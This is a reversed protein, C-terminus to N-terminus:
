NDNLRPYPKKPAPLYGFTDRMLWDTIKTGTRAHTKGFVTWDIYNIARSIHNRPDLAIYETIVKWKPDKDFDLGIRACLEVMSGPRKSKHGFKKAKNMARRIWRYRVPKPVDRWFGPFEKELREEMEELFQRARVREVFDRSLASMKVPQDGGKHKKWYSNYDHTQWFADYRRNYEEITEDYRKMVEPTLEFTDLGSSLNQEQWSRDRSEPLCEFRVDACPRGEKFREFDVYYKAKPDVWERETKVIERDCGSLLLASILLLLNYPKMPERKQLRGRQLSRLAQGRQEAPRERREQRFLRQQRHRRLVSRNKINQM